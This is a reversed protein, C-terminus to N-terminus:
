PPVTAWRSVTEAAQGFPQLPDQGHSFAEDVSVLALGLQAADTERMFSACGGRKRNQLQAIATIDLTKVCGPDIGTM